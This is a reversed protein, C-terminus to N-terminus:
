SCCNCCNFFQRSARAHPSSGLVQGIRSGAFGHIDIYRKSDNSMLDGLRACHAMYSIAFNEGHIGRHALPWKLVGM